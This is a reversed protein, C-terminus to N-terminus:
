LRLYTKATSAKQSYSEQRMILETQKRKDRTTLVNLALRLDHFIKGTLDKFSPHAYLIDSLTMKQIDDLNSQKVTKTFAILKNMDSSSSSFFKRWDGKNKHYKKIADLLTQKNM